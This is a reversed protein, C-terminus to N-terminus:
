PQVDTLGPKNGSALHNIIGAVIASLVAGLSAWTVRRPPAASEKRALVVLLRLSAAVGSALDAHALCTGAAQAGSGNELKGAKLEAQRVLEGMAEDM